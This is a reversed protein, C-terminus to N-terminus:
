QGVRKKIAGVVPGVLPLNEYLMEGADFYDRHYRVKGEYFEVQSCGHVTVTKGGNLKPHLLKMEWVLFGHNDQQQTTSFQFSCAAVNKYLSCFYNYLSDIGKIHHMPDLFEIDAHYVEYIKDLDNATLTKYFTEVKNVDM